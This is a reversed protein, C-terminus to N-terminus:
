QHGISASADGANKVLAKWAASSAGLDVKEVGSAAVSANNVFLDCVASICKALTAYPIRFGRVRILESIEKAIADFYHIYLNM